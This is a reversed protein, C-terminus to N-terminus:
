GGLQQLAGSAQSALTGTIDAVEAEAPVSVRPQPGFDFLEMSVTEDLGGVPTHGQLSLSFKRVRGQADVWADVPLTSAGTLKELVEAFRSAGAASASPDLRSVDVLAHYHTTSVGRVQESGVDTVDDSSDLLSLTQGPRNTDEQFPSPAGLAQTYTDVNARVWPKGGAIAAASGSPLQVYVYPNKVLETLKHGEVSVNVSGEEAREDIAGEASVGLDHGDLEATVNMQFQFGPAQSTVYAARTLSVPTSAAASGGASGSGGSGGGLLAAAAGAGVGAVVLAALLPARRRGVRPGRSARRGAARAREDGGTREGAGPGFYAPGEGGGFSFASGARQERDDGDEQPCMRVVEAAPGRSKFAARGAEVM